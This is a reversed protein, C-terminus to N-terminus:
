GKRKLEVVMIEPINNVRIKLTHNGLGGSLLMTSDGEEYRGRDYKPFIRVRPSIAGGLGPIRVMGGHLHGSVILDAGWAAYEKFYEPTHAIMINFQTVDPRGVMQNMIEPSLEKRHFRQYYDLDLELGYVPIVAQGRRIEIKENELLIVKDKLTSLYSEWMTGYQETDQKVREEHNGLGYYVPYRKALSCILAAAIDTPQGPHGVLMDGALLIYDPKEEDIKAILRENNEGFEANHLDALILIRSGDFEEPIKESNIYYHSVSLKRNEIMSVVAMILLMCILVIEIIILIQM